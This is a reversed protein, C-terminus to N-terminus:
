LFKLTSLVAILTGVISIYAVLIDLQNCTGTKTKKIRFIMIRPYYSCIYWCCFQLYMNESTQKYFDYHPPM